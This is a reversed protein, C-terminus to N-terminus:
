CAFVMLFHLLWGTRVTENSTITAPLPLLKATTASHKLPNTAAAAKLHPTAATPIYLWACTSSSLLVMDVCVWVSAHNNSVIPIDGLSEWTADIIQICLRLSTMIVLFAIDSHPGLNFSLLKQCFASNQVNKVLIWFTPWVPCEDQWQKDFITSSSKNEYRAENQPM